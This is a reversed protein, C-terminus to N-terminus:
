ALVFVISAILGYAILSSTILSLCYHDPSLSLCSLRSVSAPVLWAHSFLCFPNPFCFRFLAHLISSSRVSKYWSMARDIRTFPWIQSWSNLLPEWISEPPFTGGRTWLLMGELRRFSGEAWWFFWHLQPPCSLNSSKPFALPIVTASQSVIM